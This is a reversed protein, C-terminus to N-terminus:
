RKLFRHMQYIGDMEVSVLYMGSPYDGINWAMETGDLSKSDMKKGSISYITVCANKPARIYLESDVLGSVKVAEDEVEEIGSADRM